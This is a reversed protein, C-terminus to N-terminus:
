KIPNFEEAINTVNELGAQSHGSFNIALIVILVVLVLFLILMIITRMSLEVDARAM